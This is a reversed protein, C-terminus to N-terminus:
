PCATLPVCGRSANSVKANALPCYAKALAPSTFRILGPQFRLCNQEARKNIADRLRPREAQPFWRQLFGQALATKTQEKM